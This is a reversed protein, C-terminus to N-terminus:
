LVRRLELRKLTIHSKNQGNSMSLYRSLTLILLSSIIIGSISASFCIFRGLYTIPSYDGYGVTGMTIIILWVSNQFHAYTANQERESLSIMQGYTIILSIYLVVLFNLPKYEFLSKVGFFLSSKTSYIRCLRHARTNCYISSNIIAMFLLYIRSQM